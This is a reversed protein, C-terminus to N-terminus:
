MSQVNCMSQVMCRQKVPPSHLQLVLCSTDQIRIAQLQGFTVHILISFLVKLFEKSLREAIHNIFDRELIKSFNNSHSM